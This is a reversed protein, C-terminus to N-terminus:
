SGPSTRWGASSGTSPAWASTPSDPRGRGGRDPWELGSRNM